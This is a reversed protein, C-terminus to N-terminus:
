YGDMLDCPTAVWVVLVRFFNGTYFFSIIQVLKSTSLVTILVRRSFSITLLHSFLYGTTWWSRLIKVPTLPLGPARPLTTPQPVINCAPLCRIRTGILDISKNLQGLGELRV